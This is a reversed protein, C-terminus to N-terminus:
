KQMQQLRSSTRSKRASRLKMVQHIPHEVLSAKRKKKCGLRASEQSEPFVAPPQTDPLFMKAADMTQDVDMKGNSFSHSAGLTGLVM